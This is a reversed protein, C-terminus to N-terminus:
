IFGQIQETLTIRSPAKPINKEKECFISVASEKEHSCKNNFNMLFDQSVM